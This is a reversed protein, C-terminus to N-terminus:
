SEKINARKVGHFALQIKFIDGWDMGTEFILGLM